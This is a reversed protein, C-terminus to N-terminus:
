EVKLKKGAIPEKLPLTLTLLGNDFRAGSKDPDVEHALTYCSSYEFDERPARVCFGTSTVGVDVDEKSVGPLEIEVTYKEEDHCACLSPSIKPKEKRAL